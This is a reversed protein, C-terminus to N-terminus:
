SPIANTLATMPRPRVRQNYFLHGYGTLHKIERSYKSRAGAEPRGSRITRERRELKRVEAAFAKMQRVQRRTM